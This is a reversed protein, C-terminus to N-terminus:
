RERNPVTGTVVRELERIDLGGQVGDLASEM